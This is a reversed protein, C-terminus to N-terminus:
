VIPRVTVSSRPPVEAIVWTTVTVGGFTAGVADNVVDVVPRVSATSPM